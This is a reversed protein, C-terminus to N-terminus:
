FYVFFDKKFKFFISIKVVFLLLRFMLSFNLKMLKVIIIYWLYGFMLYINKVCYNLYKIIKM